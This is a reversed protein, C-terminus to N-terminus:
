PLPHPCPNLDSPTADSPRFGLRKPLEFLRRGGLREMGHGFHIPQLGTAFARVVRVGVEAVDDTTVDAYAVQAGADRLSRVVTDLDADADDRARNELEALRRAPPATLLFDMEALRDLQGFYASHDAMTRVDEYSPIRERADPGKRADGTRVQAIEFLAKEVARVPDLSCGLGVMVAPGNGSRDISMAMMVYPALDLSCDIIRIEIGFSAYHAIMEDLLSDAGAIVLAPLPLRNMWGALFADREVLECLGALTASAVTQGAALGNSTSVCFADYGDRNYNLYVLSAPLWVPERDPLSTGRLWGIEDAADYRRFPLTGSAHQEASYLVFADPALAPGGLEAARAVRISAVVPHQASYRELAEGIAGRMADADNRGKGMSSRDSDTGKVFDFNSLLSHYLIPLQPEDASRAVRRLWRIIGVRSSVTELMRALDPPEAATRTV